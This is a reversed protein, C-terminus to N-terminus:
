MFSQQLTNKLFPSIKPFQLIVGYTKWIYMERRLKCSFCLNIIDILDNAWVSVARLNPIYNYNTNKERGAWLLLKKSSDRNPSIRRDHSEELKKM